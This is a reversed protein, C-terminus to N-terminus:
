YELSSGMAMNADAKAGEADAKERQGKLEASRCEKYVVGIAKLVTLEEPSIVGDVRAAVKAENFPTLDCAKPPTDADEEDGGALAPNTVALVAVLVAMRLVARSAIGEFCNAGGDVGENPAKMTLITPILITLM